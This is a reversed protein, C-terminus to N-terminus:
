RKPATIVAYMSVMLPERAHNLGAAIKNIDVCVYREDDAGSHRAPAFVPRLPQCFRSACLALNVVRAKAFVKGARNIQRFAYSAM